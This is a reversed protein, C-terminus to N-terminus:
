LWTRVRDLVPTCEQAVAARTEPDYVKERDAAVRVQSRTRSTIEQEPPLTYGLDALQMLATAPDKTFAAYEITTWTSADLEALADLATAVQRAWHRAAVQKESIGEDAAYQRTTRGDWWLTMTPWFDVALLSAMVAEPRRLVHLFRAEPFCAHLLPVRACSATNKVAVVRGGSARGVTRLRREFRDMSLRGLHEPGVTGGVEIQFEQTLGAEAFLATCESSPRTLRSPGLGARALLTAPATLQPVRGALRPVATFQPLLDISELVVTTGSRGSGVVFLQPPPM